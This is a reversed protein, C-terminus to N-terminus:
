DKLANTRRRHRCSVRDLDPSGWGDLGKQGWCSQRSRCAQARMCGVHSSMVTEHAIQGVLCAVFHPLSTITNNGAISGVVLRVDECSLAEAADGVTCRLDILSDIVNVSRDCAHM